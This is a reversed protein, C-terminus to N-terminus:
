RRRSKKSFMVFDKLKKVPKRLMKKQKLKEYNLPEELDEKIFEDLADACLIKFRQVKSYDQM